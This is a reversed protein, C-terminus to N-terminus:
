FWCWIQRISYRKSSLAGELPDAKVNLGLARRKYDIDKWRFRRRKDKLTRAANIGNPSKRRGM